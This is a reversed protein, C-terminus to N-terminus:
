GEPEFFRRLGDSWKWLAWVLTYKKKQMMFALVGGVTIWTRYQTVVKGDREEELLEEVREARLLYGSKRPIKQLWTQSRQTKSEVVGWVLRRGKTEGNEGGKFEEM